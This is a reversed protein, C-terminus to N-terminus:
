QQNVACQQSSRNLGLLARSDSQAHALDFSLGTADRTPLEPSGTRGAQVIALHHDVGGASPRQVSASSTALGDISGLRTVSTGRLAAHGHPLPRLYLFHQPM